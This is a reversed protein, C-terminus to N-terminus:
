EDVDDDADSDGSTVASRSIEVVIDDMSDGSAKDDPTLGYDKKIRSITRDMRDLDLNVPNSDEVEVLDGDTTRQMQEKIIGEKAQIKSAKWRSWDRVCMQLIDDGYATLRMAVDDAEAEEAEPPSFDTEFVPQPADYSYNVLKSVIWEAATPENEVLWDFLGVPDARLGHKMANKNNKPPGTSLGGHM